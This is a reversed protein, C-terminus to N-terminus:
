MNLYKLFQDLRDEYLDHLMSDDTFVAAIEYNYREFTAIVAALDVRQLKLTIHLVRSEAPKSVFMSLVRADNSEVIQSIQQLSYSHEPVQLIIIGGPEHLSLLMAFTKSIATSSISGLYTEQEDLVPLVTLNLNFLVAAAEFIHQGASIHPSHLAMLHKEVTDSAINLDYILRDSILGLYERNKVVPLHAVKYLEMWSLATQGTDSPKVVPLNEIILQSALM